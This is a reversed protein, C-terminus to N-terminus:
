GNRLGAKHANSKIDIGEVLKDKLVIDRDFGLDYRVKSIKQLLWL